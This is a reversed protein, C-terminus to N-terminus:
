FVGTASMIVGALTGGVLLVCLAICIIRKWTTKANAKKKM